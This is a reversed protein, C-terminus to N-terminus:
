EHLASLILIVKRCIYEIIRMKNYDTLNQLLYSLCIQHTEPECATYISYAGLESTNTM